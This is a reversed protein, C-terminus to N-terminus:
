YLEVEEKIEEITETYDVGSVCELINGATPLTLNKYIGKAVTWAPKVGAAGLLVAPASVPYIALQAAIGGIAKIGSVVRDMKKM